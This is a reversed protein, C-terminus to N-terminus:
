KKAEDPNWRPMPREIGTVSAMTNITSSSRSDSSSLVREAVKAKSIPLFTSTPGHYIFRMGLWPKKEAPPEDPPPQAKKRAPRKSRRKRVKKPKTKEVKEEVVPAEVPVPEEEFAGAKEMEGVSFRLSKERLESPLHDCSRLFEPMKEYPKSKGAIKAHMIHRIEEGYKLGVIGLLLAGIVADVLIVMILIVIEDPDKKQNAWNPPKDTYDGCGDLIDTVECM